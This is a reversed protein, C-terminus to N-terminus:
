LITIEPLFMEMINVEYYLMPFIYEGEYLVAYFSINSCIPSYNM